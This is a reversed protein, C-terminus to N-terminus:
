IRFYRFCHPMTTFNWFILYAVYQSSRVLIDKATAASCFTGCAEAEKSVLLLPKTTGRKCYCKEPGKLNTCPIATRAYQRLLLTIKDPPEEDEEKKAAMDDVGGEKGDIEKSEPVINAISEENEEMGPPHHADDSDNQMPCVLLLLSFGERM